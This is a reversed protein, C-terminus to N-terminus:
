LAPNMLRKPYIQKRYIIRQHKRTIDLWAKPSPYSVCTIWYVNDLWGKKLKSKEVTIVITRTGSGGSSIYTPQLYLYGDFIKPSIKTLNLGPVLKAVVIIDKGNYYIEPNTNLFTIERNDDKFKTSACGSILIVIFILIVNKMM